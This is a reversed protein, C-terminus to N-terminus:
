WGLSRVAICFDNEKDSGDLISAEDFLCIADILHRKTSLCFGNGTPVEAPSAVRDMAARALMDTDVGEPIENYGPAPVSFAAANDSIATVTGIRDNGYAAVKLKRLWHPGVVTDSNLLGVDDNAAM